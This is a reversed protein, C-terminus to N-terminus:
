LLLHIKNRVSCNPGGGGGGGGGGSNKKWFFCLLEITLDSFTLNLSQTLPSLLTQDLQWKAPAVAFRSGEVMAATCHLAVCCHIHHSGRCDSCGEGRLVSVVPRFLVFSCFCFLCFCSSMSLM